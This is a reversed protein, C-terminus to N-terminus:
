QRTSIYGGLYRLLVWAPVTDHCNQPSLVDSELLVDVIDQCKGFRAKVLRQSSRSASVTSIDRSHFSSWIDESSVTSFHAITSSARKERQYQPYKASHKNEQIIGM